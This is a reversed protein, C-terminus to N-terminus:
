SNSVVLPKNQATAYNAMARFANSIRTNYLTGIGALYLDAGPAMGGYTANVHDDTVTINTGNVIISSGGAIASTHSGHDKADNDTTPLTGSGTWNYDPTNSETCCYVGKIRSNGNKDKFAIHQFDIGTDIIGLIVGSGDYQHELGAAVADNSLTLVDDDNTTQRANDTTLDMITAVEIKKVGDIAAVDQIRDVPILATMLDNTFINEVLVGLSELASVDDDNTFFIYASIYEIGNQTESHAIHRGHEPLDPDEILNGGSKQPTQPRDFSYKGSLEDLFMQTSISMKEINDIEQALVTMGIAVFGLLLAFRLKNVITKM